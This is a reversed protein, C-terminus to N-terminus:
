DIKKLAVGTINTYGSLPGYFEPFLFEDQLDLTAKDSLGVGNIVSALSQIIQMSPVASGANLQQGQALQTNLAVLQNLVQIAQAVDPRVTVKQVLYFYTAGNENDTIKAYISMQYGDNIAGQPLTTNLESGQGEVLYGLGLHMDDGLLM